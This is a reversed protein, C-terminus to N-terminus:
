TSITLFTRQKKVKQEHIFEVKQKQRYVCICLVFSHSRGTSTFPISEVNDVIEIDSSLVFVVTLAILLM